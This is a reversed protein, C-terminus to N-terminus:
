YYDTEDWKTCKGEWRSVNVPHNYLQRAHVFQRIGEQVPESPLTEELFLNQLAPLVEAVREGVLEQLTPAIRPVFERSIYLDKVATFLHLLELWQSSEIDEQWPSHCAITDNRIYLREVSSILAQPFCSCCVQALLFLHRHSLSRRITSYLKGDAPQPFTVLVQYSSFVIYAEDIANFKPTRCIFESLQSTDLIHFFTMGLKDLLPADIRAVLDDLYDSVGNFRLETLVRLFIRTRLDPPRSKRYPRNEAYKFEIHLLELRTLVSLCTVMTEFPFHGSDPIGALRLHVLHSASLILNPLGPFPICGLILTRLRPAAGGLFSAPFVPETEDRGRLALVTLAPFPKQMEALVKQFDLSPIHSLIVESIRDNHELAAIINDEVWKEPRLAFISIPLPPWADLTARVPTTVGCYLKLDLRHPSGFVLSRWKRCVHVLTCWPRTRPGRIFFYFIELLALEPLIDITVHAVERWNDTPAPGNHLLYLIRVGAEM